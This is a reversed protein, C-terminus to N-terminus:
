KNNVTHNNRENPKESREKRIPKKEATPHGELNTELPRHASKKTDVVFRKTLPKFRMDAYESIHGGREENARNAIIQYSFSVDSRGNGLEQVEFSKASKNTVYVGNCDGELQIFVKMPHRADVAINNSLLPDLEIKAYGNVLTGIGYDQFLAEPAEPAVMVHEINETDRILTSVIGFGLIKYGTNDVISGVTAVAPVAGTTSSSVYFLGGMKDTTTLNLDSARGEVGINVAAANVGSAGTVNIEWVGTTNAYGLNCYQGGASARIGHAYRLDETAVAELAAESGTTVVRIGNGTGNGKWIYAGHGIGYNYSVLGSQPSNSYLYLGVGSGGNYIRAAEASGADKQVYLGRANGYNFFEATDSSGYNEARLATGTGENEILVADATGTTKQILLNHSTGTTNYIDLRALPSTTGIGVNNVSADVYLTNDDVSFDGNNEYQMYLTNNTNTTLGFRDMRLLDAIELAGTNPVGTAVSSNPIEVRDAITQPFLFGSADRDWYSAASATSIFPLWSSTPNNWYYFGPPNTGVTTTLYVLMSQQQATPNIAPFVNIKPILLGDTNTPATLSSSRIDLTAQPTTTGIGIQSFLSSGYLLLISTFLTKLM